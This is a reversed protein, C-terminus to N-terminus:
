YFIREVEKMGRKVEEAVGELAKEDIGLARASELNSLDADSEFFGFQIKTSVKDALNVILVEKKTGKEFSSWKHLRVVESFERGYGSEELLAAGFSIHVEQLSEMLENRDFEMTDPAIDGISKLLLVCGIDHTLGMLFVKDSNRDGIKVSIARCCYACSLSHLWLKEILEKFQKNKTEYLGRNTIASVISQIEKTGLRTIATRLDQVKDGGRYYLASNATAIIKISIVADKELVKALEEAGSTPKNMITEIERSIQPLVPLSIKGQNFKHITEMVMKRISQGERVPEPASMGLEELRKAIIARDFPKVVYSDCGAQMCTIVTGKDSQATVMIVKLQNEKSINRQQEIKRIEYLVETGDMRPMSIDLTILDFPEGKEIAAEFAKLAAEGSDAAVCESFTDMIKEMKKRSVLEDDVVLVRM